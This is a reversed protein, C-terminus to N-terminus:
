NTDVVTVGVVEYGVEDIAEIFTDDTIDKNLEVIAVKSELDAKASIVGDLEKLAEEVHKVCHACTMGEIQLKKKM